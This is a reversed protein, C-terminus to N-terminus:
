TTDSRSMTNGVYMENPKLMDATIYIANMTSVAIDICTQSGLWSKMTNAKWTIELWLMNWPRSEVEKDVNDNSREM